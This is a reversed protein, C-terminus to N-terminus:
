DEIFANRFIQEALGREKRKRLEEKIGILETDIHDIERQKSRKIKLLSSVVLELEEDGAESLDAPMDGVGVIHSVM